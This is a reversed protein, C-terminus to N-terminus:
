FFLSDPDEGAPLPVILPQLGEGLCPGLARILAKEGAMDGDLLFYISRAGARRLVKAMADTFASGSVCVSNRGEVSHLRLMDVPGEVVLAKKSKRIWDFAEFLGYLYAGKEYIGKIAGPNLYKPKQEKGSADPIARGTFGVIRGRLDRMPFTIVNRYFEYFHKGNRGPRLLYADTLVAPDFGAAFFGREELFGRLRLEGSAPAFGLGWPEVMERMKRQELYAQAEASEALRAIFFEQAAALAEFIRERRNKDAELKAQAEPGAEFRPMQMGAFDALDRVAELFGAGTRARVFEIADWTKGCGGYCHYIPYGCRTKNVHAVFSATAESHFPCCAKGTRTDMDVGHARALEVLNVKIKLDELFDDKLM